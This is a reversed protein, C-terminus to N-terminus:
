LAPHAVGHLRPEIRDLVDRLDGPVQHFAVSRGAVTMAAVGEQARQLLASTRWPPPRAAACGPAGCDAPVDELRDALYGAPINPVGPLHGAEREARGRVDLVTVTRLRMREDLEAGTIQAVSARRGGRWAGM